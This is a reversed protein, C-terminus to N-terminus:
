RPDICQVFCLLVQLRDIRHHETAGSVMVGLNQRLHIRAKIAAILCIGRDSIDDIVHASVSIAMDRCAAPKRM